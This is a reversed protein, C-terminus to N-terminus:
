GGARLQQLARSFDRNLQAFSAKDAGPLVRVVVSAGVLDQEAAIHRLRRTIRHRVVANGVSRGVIFGFRAPHSASEKILYMLFPGRRARRGRRVVHTFEARHVLRKAAPLM